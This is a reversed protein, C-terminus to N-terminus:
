PGSPGFLGRAPSQAIWQPSGLLKLKTGISLRKVTRRILLWADVLPLSAVVECWHACYITIEDEEYYPKM